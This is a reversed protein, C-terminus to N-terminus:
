GQKMLSILFLALSVTVVRQMERCHGSVVGLLRCSEWALERELQKRMWGRGLGSFDERVKEEGTYTGSTHGCHPLM